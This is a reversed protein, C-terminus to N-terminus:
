ESLYQPLCYNAATGGALTSCVQARSQVEAVFKDFSSAGVHGRM